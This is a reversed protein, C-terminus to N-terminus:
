VDPHPLEELRLDDIGAFDRPNCTYLPLQNAIAIAAILADFARARPKRGSRRLSAAVGGFARAAAADFSVPEFVAETEQLRAQRAARERDDDTALPGVSLEALSIASILPETPLHDPDLRELLIVANTDLLGAAVTM